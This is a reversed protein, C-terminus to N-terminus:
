FLRAQTGRLLNPADGREEAQGQGSVKRALDGCDAFGGGVCIVDEDFEDADEGENEPRFGWSSVLAVRGGHTKKEVDGGGGQMEDM